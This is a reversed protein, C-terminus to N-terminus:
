ADKGGVKRIRRNLAALVARASRLEPTSNRDIIERRKEKQGPQAWWGLMFTRRKARTSPLKTIRTAHEGRSICELNSLRVNRRNQDKFRVIYGPPVPGHAKEWILVHEFEWCMGGRVQGKGYGEPERVKRTLYGDTNVHTTGIPMWHWSKQGKKFQTEQMRGRGISYGQRRLGKNAPAHGKPFRAGISKPHRVIQQGCKRLVRRIQQPTKHLGLHHAKSSVRQPTVRLLRAVAYTSRHAYWRRLVSEEGRTWYRRTM